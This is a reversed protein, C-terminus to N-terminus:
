TGNAAFLETAPTTGTVIGGNLTWLLDGFYKTSMKDSVRLDFRNFSFDGNLLDKFGRSYKFWVTPYDSGLSIPGRTTEMTKERFAYRVEATVLSLNYVQTTDTAESPTYVYNGFAAKRQRILSINWYFDRLPKLRFRYSLVMGETMNMRQTFFLNYNNIDLIHTADGHFSTGGEALAKYYYEFRVVSETRKHVKVEVDGGYKATKDRFGYGGFGGISVIKSFRRNTHLGAGLYFGEYDNYHMFKDMEIDVPGAPIAGSALTLIINAYHDFHEAQGLSDIFRYTEKDTDTLPTVRYRDWYDDDRHIARADIEVEHLGFDKKKLDPNLDIDKLFSTAHAIPYYIHGNHEATGGTKFLIDTNLQVPFWITDIRRYAQQIKVEIGTTDKAPVAKVNEIAWGRSNISLFGEMANFTTNRKPRFSIIFTTDGPARIITDEMLFIYKRTSGRSVPNVFDKTLIHIKERYFSPTQLQSIMLVMVPDRFGSIRSALVVNQNLDPKIYLRRTVTEVIFLHQRELFRRFALDASDLLTTDCTLLSDADVTVIMKDYSTYSFKKLKEPDNRSRHAVALRIIRHAPNIGPFVKVEDLVVPRYHLRITQLEENYDIPYTLPQYGVYSIKLCCTKEPLSLTFRGEIDTVMGYRGDGTVINVFALPKNDRADTVVGRVTVEQGGAPSLWLYLLLAPLLIKKM